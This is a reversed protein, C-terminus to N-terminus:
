QPPAIMFQQKPEPIITVIDASLITGAVSIASRLSNKVIITSDLIKKEWMDVFEGTKADFGYCNEKGHLTDFGTFLTPEKKGSNIQIQLFPVKLAESMIKHATSDGVLVKSANLLTLGGGAVIGGQLANKVCNVCDIAKDKKHSLASESLAGIKLIAERASLRALREKLLPTDSDLSDKINQAYETLDEGGRVTVSNLTITIKECTGGHSLKAKDLLVGSKANLITAGTSHTIDQFFADKDITPARVVIVRCNGKINTQLIHSLVRDEIEDVVFVCDSRSISAMQTFLPKLQLPDRLPITTVFILPEEQTISKYNDAFAPSALRAGLFRIGKIEEWTTVPSGSNDVEVFGNPGIKEYIDSVIKGMEEDESSINAVAEINEKTKCPKSQNEILIELEPLINELQRKIEIGATENKYKLGENIIAQALATATTTGDGSQDDARNGVERIIDAGMEAVPDKFHIARSISIGDNTARYNPRGRDQLLANSGKAGLTKKVANAVGNIGMLLLGQAEEDTYLNSQNLNM